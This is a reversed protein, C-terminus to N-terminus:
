TQPSDAQSDFLLIPRCDPRLTCSIEEQGFGWDQGKTGKGCYGSFFIPVLINTSSLSATGVFFSTEFM